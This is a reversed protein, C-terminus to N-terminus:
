DQDLVEEKVKIKDKRSYLVEKNSSSSNSVTLGDELKIFVEEISYSQENVTETHPCNTSFNDELAALGDEVKIMVEEIPHIQDGNMNMRKSSISSSNESTTGSNKKRKDVSMNSQIHTQMHSKLALKLIFESECFTCKHPGFSHKQSPSNKTEGPTFVTDSKHCHEDTHIRLHHSENFSAGCYSCKHPTDGTHVTMHRRLKASDPYSANCEQCRHPREGTHTNLHNKLLGLRSFAASCFSCQHPREGTHMRMHSRLASSTIFAAICQSCKHPREGSHTMIHTKLHGAQSFSDMCLRCKYPKEGTHTRKHKNLDSKSAFSSDCFLCEHPKEGTHTAMHDRLKSLEYFSKECILCKHPKHGSHRKMHKRLTSRHSLTADCKSCHYLVRTHIAMHQKALSQSDFIEGCQSCKHPSKNTYTRQYKKPHEGTYHKQEVEKPPYLNASPDEDLGEATSNHDDEDIEIPAPSMMRRQKFRSCVTIDKDINKIIDMKEVELAKKAFPYSWEIWNDKDKVEDSHESSDDLQMPVDDDKEESDNGIHVAKMRRACWKKEGLAKKEVAAKKKEEIKKRKETKVRVDTIAEENETLICAWVMKCGKGYPLPAVKPFLRVGEPTIEPSALKSNRPGLTAPDSSISPDGYSCPEVMVDAPSLDGDSHMPSPDPLDVETDHGEALRDEGDSSTPTVEETYNVPPTLRKTVQAGVFADDPFINHNIPWIGTLRFGDLINSPNIAKIWAKSAFEPLQHVTIHENPHMLSHDNLLGRLFTKFPGFVSVDLPQLKDTTHPPLTVIVIGHKIAFEMVHINMHCEANDMILLIKNEVCCGSKEHLHQLTQVFCEGNMWGNPHLIGISGLITNRMFAPNWRCRPIIFVPPISQGVANIIGVFTMTDGREQTVQSAVPQVRACAVKVPEMVTSLSSEDLNYIRDPTFEYKEMALTYARFFTEVNVKNFAVIRAISMGEPAKLVLNPHRDMFSYYWDRTAMRDKEWADPITQSGCAKAYQYVMRRVENMSLGYFIRAAHLTYEVIHLEQQPTFVRNGHPQLPVYTIGDSLKKSRNFADVLTTKKVSFEEAAAKISCNTAVRHKFAAELNTRDLQKDSKRVYKRPMIIPSKLLCYALYDQDMEEKIKIQDKQSYLVGKTSSESADDEVKILVEEIPSSQENVVESQPCVPSHNEELATLGDEVEIKFEVPHNQEENIRIVEDTITCNGSTTGRNENLQDSKINQVHTQMHHRLAMKQIFEADCFTCKFTENRCKQSTSKGIEGSTSVTDNKNCHENTHVKLHHLQNFSADCFPCKHPTDGTHAKMHRRLKGPDPYSANCEQCRYPKEGTHVNLHNKLHDLRSFAASCLSCKHPKDGTHISLHGNLASSTIFAAICQSCKFPREGSHKMVHTKLQSAQSFGAMCLECKYPKEGTHIRMHKNLDSKHFFSSECFICKNLKEGSHITMHERLKSLEYFSKECTECKHPKYGTHTKVHRKLASSTIFASICQNCKFPKEGSHTMIHTKLHGAQSFSDMCLKCKYPKEGTHIRMHKNLDSKITFSSDCFSCKHPKEGTHRKMHKSLTSRHSLAANCKNCHYLVRNHVAMHQRLLKRSNFVKDCQSCEHPLKNTRTQRDKKSHEGTYMCTNQEVEKPLDLNALPDEDLEEGTSNCNEEDIETVTPSMRTQKLKSNVTIDQSINETTDMNEM